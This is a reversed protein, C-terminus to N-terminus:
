RREEDRPRRKNSWGPAEPEEEEVHRREFGFGFRSDAPPYVDQARRGDRGRKVDRPDSTPFPIRIAEQAPAPLQRLRDQFFQRMRIREEPSAQEWRERLDRREDSSLQVLKITIRAQSFIASDAQEALAPLTPLLLLLAFLLHRRM